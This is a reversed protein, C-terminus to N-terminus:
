ADPDIRKLRAVFAKEHIFRTMKSGRLFPEAWDIEVDRIFVTIIKGRGYDSSFVWTGERIDDGVPEGAGDSV